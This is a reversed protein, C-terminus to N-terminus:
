SGGGKGDTKEASLRGQLEQNQPYLEEASKGNTPNFYHPLNKEDNIIKIWDIKEPCNRICRGCGTCMFVGFQDKFYQLKHYIRHKFRETRSERFIHGGAVETFDKFQCSDWELRREGGKLDLDPEDFVTFCMCTPCLHTCKGCSFCAKSGKEWAASNFMEKINKDPLRAKCETPKPKYNETAMGEVLWDHKPNNVKVHWYSGRDIMLLDYYPKFEMSSCFCYSDVYSHCYNGILLLKSRKEIYQEDPFENNKFLFDNVFFANLDCLRAGLLVIQEVDEKVPIPKDDKYKFLTQTHPFVYEKPSFYTHGSWVIQDPKAVEDFRLQDQMRPAIVRGFQKLRAFFSPFDDKKLVYGPEKMDSLDTM